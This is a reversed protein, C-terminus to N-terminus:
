LDFGCPVNLCHNTMQIKTHHFKDVCFSLKCKVVKEKSLFFSALIMLNIM